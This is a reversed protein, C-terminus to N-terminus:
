FRRSAAECVDAAEDDDGETEDTEAAAHVDSDAGAVADGIDDAAAAVVEDRALLIDRAGCAIDVASDRGKANPESTEETGGDVDSGVVAERGERVGGAVESEDIEEGVGCFTGKAIDVAAVVRECTM